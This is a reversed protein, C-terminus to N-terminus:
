AARAADIVSRESRPLVSFGFPYDLSEAALEDLQEYSLTPM